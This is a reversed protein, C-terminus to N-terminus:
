ARAIKKFGLGNLISLMEPDEALVEWAPFERRKWYTKRLRDFGARRENPPLSFLERLNRDDEAINYATETAKRIGEFLDLGRLDITGARHPLAHATSWMNKVGAFRALGDAMMETGKLKGDQSYGAIHPTALQCLQLLERPVEPEGEWVDLIAGSLHKEALSVRLAESHVVGGRATNILVAGPKVSELFKEDVWHHTPYDGGETLPISLSVIDAQFLNTLSASVFGVENEARPPDYQIVEMGLAQSFDVIKQGIAGVGVVALKASRIDIMGKGHLQLLGAAVYEAVSRAGGGAADAFAIGNEELFDFDIHDTGITATGVFKVRTGQLLERNVQTISRVVLADAEILHQQAIARGSLLRVEGFQEFAESASAINEDAVITM